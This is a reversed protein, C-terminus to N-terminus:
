ASTEDGDGNNESPNGSMESRKSELADLIGESFDTDSPLVAKSYVQTTNLYTHDLFERLEDLDECLDQVLHASLHRIGHTTVKDPDVGEADQAYSKLISNFSHKYMPDPVYDDRKREKAREKVSIFIPYQDPLEGLTLDRIELYSHLMTELPAPVINTGRKNGKGIYDYQLDDDMRHFDGAMLGPLDSARHAFVLYFVSMTFDRRGKFTSRDMQEQIKLLWKLRLPQATAYPDTDYADKNVLEVPNYEMVPERGPGVPGTLFSYFSSVGMVRTRITNDALGQKESMDTIWNLVNMKSLEEPPGSYFDRHHRMASLYTVVTEETKGDALWGRLLKIWFRESHKSSRSLEYPIRNELSPVNPEYPTLKSM